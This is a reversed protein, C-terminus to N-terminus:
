RRSINNGDSQLLLNGHTDTRYCIIDRSLLTKLVQEHPHGFDNGLGCSIVAIQPKVKDIFDESTSTNSGHHSIKIVDAKLNKNNSLLDMEILKEADGTFLFSTNMYKLLVVASYNNLNEYNDKIPSLFELSTFADFKIIAGNKAVSIKLSKKRLESIMSKFTDTDTLVKPAYFKAIKFKKIINPMSGIHDEHPHTAIVYDLKKVNHKKLFSILKKNNYSPGADILMNIDKYQILISDGQGVNIFYVNLKPSNSNKKNSPYCSTQFIILICILIHLLRKMIKM